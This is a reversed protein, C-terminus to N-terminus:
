ILPCNIFQSEKYTEQVYPEHNLQIDDNSHNFTLSESLGVFIAADHLVPHDMCEVLSDTTYSLLRLHICLRSSTQTKLEKKQSRLTKPFSYSVIIGPIGIFACCIIYYM